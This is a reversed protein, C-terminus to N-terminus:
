TEKAAILHTTKMGRGTWYYLSQTNTSQLVVRRRREESRNVAISGAFSFIAGIVAGIVVLLITYWWQQQFAQALVM